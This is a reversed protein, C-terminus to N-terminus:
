WALLFGGSTVIRLWIFEILAMKIKNRRLEMEHQDTPINVEPKVLLIRNCEEVRKHTSCARGM